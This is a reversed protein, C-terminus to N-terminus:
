ISGVDEAEEKMPRIFTLELYVEELTVQRGTMELITYGAKICAKSLM